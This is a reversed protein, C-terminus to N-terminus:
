RYASPGGPRGETDQMSLQIADRLTRLTTIQGLDVGLSSLISAMTPQIGTVIPRAGLLQVARVVKIIHDASATDVTDVGTLDLIAYRVGASAVERLVAEMLMSARESDLLGVIPVALVGDWVQILPIAMARLSLKQKEIIALRSRMEEDARRRDTVDSSVGMAGNVDGNEDLMPAYRNELIRGAILIEATFTEGQLVRRLYACLLEDDRYLDFVNMGVIQGPALGISMLAAGESLTVIGARDISWVMVDVNNLVTRLLSMGESM